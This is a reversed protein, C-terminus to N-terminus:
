LLLTSIVGEKVRLEKEKQLKRPNTFNQQTEIEYLIYLKKLM